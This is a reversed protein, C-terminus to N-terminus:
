ITEKFCCVNFFRIESSWASVVGYMHRKGGRGQYAGSRDKSGDDVLICEWDQFTQNSISDLCRRLYAEAQYVPVIISIKPAKM